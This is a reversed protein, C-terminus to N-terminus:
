KNWFIEKSTTGVKSNKNGLVARQEPAIQTTINDVVEVPCCWYSIVSYLIFVVNFCFCFYSKLIVLGCILFIFSSTSSTTIHPIYMQVPPNDLAPFKLSEGTSFSASRPHCVDDTFSTVGWWIKVPNHSCYEHSVLPFVSFYHSM